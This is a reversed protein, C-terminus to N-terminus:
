RNYGSCEHEAAAVPRAPKEEEPNCVVDDEAREVSWRLQHNV